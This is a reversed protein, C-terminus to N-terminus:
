KEKIIYKKMTNQYENKKVKDLIYQTIKNRKNTKKFLKVYEDHIFKIEEPTLSKM